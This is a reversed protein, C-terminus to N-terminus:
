IDVIVYLDSREEKQFIQMNSYTIAKIETGSTHKKKNFKEGKGQVKIKFNEVDFELIHVEKCVIFETSFMFLFEDMFSYLLSELDHGEVELIQTCSEDIMVLELSTIYGFMCVVMQEFSEKLTKGWSHFQIDATHDLYEFGFPSSNVDFSKSEGPNSSEEM